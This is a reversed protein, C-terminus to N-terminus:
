LDTLTMTNWTPTMVTLQGHKSTEPCQQSAQDARSAALPVALPARRREAMGCRVTIALVAHCTLRHAANLAAHKLAAHRVIPIGMKIVGSNSPSPKVLLVVTKIDLSRVM